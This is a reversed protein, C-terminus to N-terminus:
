GAFGRIGFHVALFEKAGDSGSIELVPGAHVPDERVVFCLFPCVRREMAVFDDLHEAIHCAPDLWFAFGDQSEVIEVTGVQLWEDLLERRRRETEDLKTLDCKM